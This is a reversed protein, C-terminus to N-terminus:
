GMDCLQKCVLNDNAHAATMLARMLTVTHNGGQQTTPTIDTSNVNILIGDLDPLSQM